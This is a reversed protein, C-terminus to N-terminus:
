TIKSLNMYRPLSLILRWCMIGFVTCLTRESIYLVMMESSNYIVMGMLYTPSTSCIRLGFDLSCMIKLFGGKPLRFSLSGGSMWLSQSSYDEVPHLWNREEGPLDKKWVYSNWSAWSSANEMSSIKTPGQALLTVIIRSGENMVMGFIGGRYCVQTQGAQFMGSM